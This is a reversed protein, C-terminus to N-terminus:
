FMTTNYLISYSKDSVSAKYWIANYDEWHNQLFKQLSKCLLTKHESDRVVSNKLLM